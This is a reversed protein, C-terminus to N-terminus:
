HGAVRLLAAEERGDKATSALVSKLKLDQIAVQRM